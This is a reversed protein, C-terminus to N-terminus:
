PERSEGCWRRQADKMGPGDDLVCFLVWLCLLSAPAGNEWSM